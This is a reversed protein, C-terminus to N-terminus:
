CVRVVNFVRNSRLTWSVLIPKKGNNKVILDVSNNMSKSTQGDPFLVLCDADKSQKLANSIDFNDKTFSTNDNDRGVFKKVVKGGKKVFEKNFKEFLPQSFNSDGNYFVAANKLNKKNM